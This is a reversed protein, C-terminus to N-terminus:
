RSVVSAASGPTKSKTKMIRRPSTSSDNPLAPRFLDHCLAQAPESIELRGAADAKLYAFTIPGQASEDRPQGIAAAKSGPDIAARM